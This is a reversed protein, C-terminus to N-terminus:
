QHQVLSYISNKKRVKPQSNLLTGGQQPLLLPLTQPTIGRSQLVSTRLNQHFVPNAYLSQLTSYQTQGSQAATQQQQQAQQQAQQAQALSQGIHGLNHRELLEQIPSKRSPLNWNAIKGTKVKLPDLTILPFHRFPLSVQTILTDLSLTLNSHNRIPSPSTSTKPSTLKFNIIPALTLRMVETTIMTADTAAVTWKTMTRMSLVRVILSIGRSSKYLSVGLSQSRKLPM